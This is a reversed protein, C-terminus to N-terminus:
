QIKISAKAQAKRKKHQRKEYIHEIFDPLPAKWPQQKHNGLGGFKKPNLGLEKAMKIHEASLKYKKKTKAWLAKQKDEKNM